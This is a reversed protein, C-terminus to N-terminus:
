NKFNSILFQVNDSVPSTVRISTSLFLFYESQTHSSLLYPLSAKSSRAREKMVRINKEVDGVYQNAATINLLADDEKLLREKM